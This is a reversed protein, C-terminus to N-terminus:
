LLFDLFASFKPALIAHGTEDPHVGHLTDKTYTLDRFNSDWPRLGSGHYLDLFPISKRECCQRLASVYNEAFTKSTTGTVSNVSVWPCPSVVGLNALPVRAFLADFASNIYGCITSTGSDEPTGIPIDNNISYAYDNFSGFITYVDADTPVSAMRETFNGATGSPNAYGTGGIGYNATTIGTEDAIYDFYHKSTASNAETLSDGICVWKKGEWKKAPAEFIPYSVYANFAEGLKSIVLYHANEPLIVNDNFVGIGSSPSVEVYIPNHNEDYIAFFADGWGMRANIKLYDYQSIDIENSVNWATGGNPHEVVEGKNNISRSEIFSINLRTYDVTDLIHNTLEIFNNEVESLNNEVKLGNLTIARLYCGSGRINFQIKKFKDSAKFVFKKSDTTIVPYIASINDKKDYLFFHAGGGGIGACNCEYLTDPTLEVVNSVRGSSFDIITGDAMLTKSATTTYEVNTFTVNYPELLSATILSEGAVLAADAKIGNGTAKAEAAGQTSLTSDIVGSDLKQLTVAGNDINSSKVAGNASSLKSNWNTKDTDTVFKNTQGTDDVLNSSLKHSSDIKTQGDTIGYGSLTTAKDAKGSVDIDSAIATIIINGTVKPISIKEQSYVSSTVDTGGMTVVVNQISKTNLASLKAEFTQYMPISSIPNDTNINTLNYTIAVDAYPNSIKEPEGDILGARITNIEEITVGIKLVYDIIKDRFTSGSFASGLLYQILNMWRYSQATDNRARRNRNGAYDKSFSTLEYDREIDNRSVGCIALILMAVTATRDAGELCHMYCPKGEEIDRAIRKIVNAYRRNMEANDSKIEIGRLYPNIPIITYDVGIGLATDKIDDTTEYEADDGATETNGLDPDDKVQRFDIEDRIGLFNKFFDIQAPSISIGYRTQGSTYNGNLRCGRYIVGYKLRGGDCAWGGLDRINFIPRKFTTSPDTTYYTTAKGADITRVQGSAKCSGTKIVTDDIDTIVYTYLRNPILNKVTYTDGSINVSWKTNAVTDYLTLKVGGDPIAIQGGNPRENVASGITSPVNTSAYDTGNYAYDVAFTYDASNLYNKVDDNTVEFEIDPTLIDFNGIIADNFIEGSHEGLYGEVAEAIQEDTPQIHELREKLDTYSGRAAAIERVVEAYTGLSDDDVRGHEAIDPSIRVLVPIQSVIINGLGDVIKPQIELIGSRLSKVKETDIGVIVTSGNVDCEAAQEILVGDSVYTVTAACGQELEIPEGDANFTIDIYRTNKDGVHAIFDVTYQNPRNIDISLKRHPIVM